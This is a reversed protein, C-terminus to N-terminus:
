AAIERLVGGFRRYYASSPQPLEGVTTESNESVYQTAAQDIRQYINTCLHRAIHGEWQPPLLEDPLLPDKLTVRRYFHILLLRLQFCHEPSIQTGANDKLLLALPRFLSIFQHYHESIEQLSWAQSVLDKLNKESRSYPYDAHFYIAQETANLENLLAPVDSQACSPAAMLSTNFQGFGLWSLEKKLRIKEEKDAAELLLLNWKGDWDPQEALYIKQEARRFRSQGRASIRYYSRRGIKEVDLWGEKQLRFVSTRVFRDTFGMPELLKTLSGLWVEGGRHHLADGYLSSILSTGSIPQSAIAHQIFQDLKTNM